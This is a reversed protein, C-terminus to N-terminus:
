SGTEVPTDGRGGWDTWSGDYIAVADRGILHLGLALNCATVGSGCTTIVPKDLDLGAGQYLAALADADKMLRNEDYLELFPLNHAGPMHGSRLGARPEPETGAFRGRSRADLVQEGGTELATRVQGCNRVRGPGRATFHQAAPQVAGTALPRGEARWKPLGGDLVSVRDHGFARFMWWARAASGIGTADYCIVHTDNTIGLAGVKAAFLDADPLMHPLPDAKNAIDDIDFFVAGPIHAAEFETRPDRELQPMHWSSDVIRVGADAAHAALWETSVLAQPNVYAM